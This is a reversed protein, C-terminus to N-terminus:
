PFHACDHGDYERRAALKFIEFRRSAEAAREAQREAALDRFGSPDRPEPEYEGEAGSHFKCSPCCYRTRLRGTRALHESGPGDETAIPKPVTM